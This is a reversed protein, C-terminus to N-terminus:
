PKNLLNKIIGWFWNFFNILPSPIISKLIIKHTYQQNGCTLKIEKEGAKFFNNNGLMIDQEWKGYPPLVEFNYSLESNLFDPISLIINKNYLATNGFNTIIIKGRLPWGVIISDPFNLDVEINEKLTVEKGFSINIDKSSNEDLKYSGPALPLSSDLGHFVFSFHNLDMKHFFDIGGTTNEWTPDVSIWNKKDPDYYQPWAHLVDLSLSLPRLKANNTFAYGNVERSPIGAARTLAIFLDTFEMCIASNINTLTQLAGMREINKNLRGYDYILNKTVYNYINQATKLEKAKTQIAPDSSEWFPQPQLYKALDLNKKFSFEPRNQLYIYVSGTANIDTKEKAKLKYSALWNGDFDVIIQDPVPEIKKYFVQQYNDDPPLTIEYTKTSSNPNYLHYNINFDFIQYSGFTATISQDKLNQKNFFYTKAENTKTIKVPKPYIYSPEDFQSPIILSIGYNTLNEIEAMSPISIELVRGNKLAYDTSIYGLNFKLVKDKGVVKNPFDMKILTSNEKIEIQPILLNGEEDKAWVDKINTSSLTLQYQTAYINALKNTLNINQNVAVSGDGTVRYTIDYTTSFENVALVKHTPLIFFSIISFILFIYLKKIYGIM